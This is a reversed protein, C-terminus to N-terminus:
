SSSSLPAPTFVALLTLIDHMAAKSDSSVTMSYYLLSLMSGKPLVQQQKYGHEKKNCYRQTSTSGAKMQLGVNGLLTWSM